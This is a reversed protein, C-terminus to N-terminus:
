QYKQCTRGHRQVTSPYESRVRVQKSTNDGDVPGDERHAVFLTESLAMGTKPPPAPRGRIAALFPSRGGPTGAYRMFRGGKRTCEVADRAAQDSSCAGIRVINGYSRRWWAYTPGDDCYRVIAGLCVNDDRHLHECEDDTKDVWTSM